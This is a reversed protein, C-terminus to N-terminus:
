LPWHNASRLMKRQGKTIKRAKWKRGIATAAEWVQHAEPESLESTHPPNIPKPMPVNIISQSPRPNATSATARTYTPDHNAREIFFGARAGAAVMKNTRIRGEM